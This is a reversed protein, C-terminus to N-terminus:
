EIVVIQSLEVKPVAFQARRGDFRFRIEERSPALYIREPAEALALSIEVDYLPVIDEIVETSGRKVPSAYILHVVLRKKKAQRMVTAIGSSKLDVELLPEQYLLDLCNKFLERHLRMGKEKYGRFIPQAIHIIGGKRVVAPWGAPKEYDSNQHSHFHEYTRNFYPQWTEALAECDRVKTTVGSHYVLVPSRVMNRSIAEGVLIFEVDWPSLGTYDAGFDIAFAKRGPDLGSEGSLILNGGETVFAELKGKLGEDVLVCDPLILVKYPSFDMEEDLIAFPVQNELLMNVAGRESPELGKDKMVASPALVAVDAVPEADELWEEREEIEGYAEGILRYVEEDMRGSPHPQDGISCKCGFAVIRATEYRLAAASKFGGYECWWTHYRATMGLVDGHFIQTFYPANSPYHDYGWVGTAISEIEYHDWYPYLDRRGKMESGNHYITAEPNMGHVLATIKKLYNKYVDRAFEKRDDPDDPDLGREKMDASCRDCACEYEGTIDFFFGGPNYTEIVERTVPLVVEDLYPSNLCLRYWGPPRASHPHMVPPGELTGDPRRIVWEPHERSARDNWGVTIYVRTSIDAQEAAKLMRGLLDTKLHPHPPAVKSPYYCWGHHGMAYVTVSDVHGKKLAGIFQAEDFEEGVGRCQEPVLMDLHIQRFRLKTRKM